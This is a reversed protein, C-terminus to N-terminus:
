PRCRQSRAAFISSTTSTTAASAAALVWLLLACAAVLAPEAATEHSRALLGLCALLILVALRGEAEGFQARAARYVAYIALMTWLGASLRAADPAYLVGSLLKILLAALWFALPGEEAVLRGAVNPLLWDMLGGNAMSWAIGFGIADDQKWPDHGALGLLAYLVAIAWFWPSPLPVPVRLHSWRGAVSM